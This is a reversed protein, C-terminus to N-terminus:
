KSLLWRWGSVEGCVSGFGEGVCVMIELRGVEPWYGQKSTLNTNRLSM